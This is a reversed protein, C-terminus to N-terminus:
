REAAATRAAVGSRPEGCAASAPGLVAAAPRLTAGPRRLWRELFGGVRRRYTAPDFAYLDEHRAGPVAWFRKAAPAHAYLSEAEVLPTYPDETGSALLVPARVAGIRAIPRLRSETVGVKSGVVRIV